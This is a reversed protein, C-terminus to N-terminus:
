TLPMPGHAHGEQRGALSQRCCLDTGHCCRFGEGRSQSPWAGWQGNGSACTWPQVEALASRQSCALCWCEGVNAGHLIHGHGLRVWVILAQRNGPARGRRHPGLTGPRCRGCAHRTRADKWHAIRIRAHHGCALPPVGAAGVAPSESASRCRMWCVAAACAVRLPLRGGDSPPSSATVEPRVPGRPSSKSPQSLLPGRLWPPPVTLLPGASAGTAM